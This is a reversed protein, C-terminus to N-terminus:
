PGGYQRTQKKDYREKKQWDRGQVGKMMNEYGKPDQLWSPVPHVGLLTSRFLM